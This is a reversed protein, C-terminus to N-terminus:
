KLRAIEQQALAVVREANAQWTFNKEQISERAKERLPALQEFNEIAYFLKKSFDESSDPTFLLASADDVIECINPSRPAIILSGAALYEFLKLPSAYATVAPQLAIDFQAVYNFVQDRSKLGTFEVKDAVGLHKAIEELEPRVDGDGVCVLRINLEKFEAIAEIALELKHWPHIFGVFGITLQKEKTRQTPAFVTGLLNANIGNHIVEINEQEVGVHEVIDALVQTVPLSKSAGRWTVNEILRALGTLELGSYKSREDVLPANIELLIPLRFLKAVWVGVPQYLQYREYIFDPKHKVIAKILKCAILFSYGFELIEYVAKPLRKKLRTALGGENGFESKETFSPAVWILQHGQELLANTLEEVHVYQGDKSAIRHHYLIKM